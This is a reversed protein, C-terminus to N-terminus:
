VLTYPQYEEVLAGRTQAGPKLAYPWLYIECNFHGATFFLSTVPRCDLSRRCILPEGVTLIILLLNDEKSQITLNAWKWHVTLM